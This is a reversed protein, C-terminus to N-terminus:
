GEPRALVPEVALVHGANIFIHDQLHRGNAGTVLVVRAMKEGHGHAVEREIFFADKLELYDTTRQLLRGFCVRGNDLLIARYDTDVPTVMHRTELRIPGSGQWGPGPGPTLKNDCVRGPVYLVDKLTVHSPGSDELKGFLAQGNDLFVAKYDIDASASRWSESCGALTAAICILATLLIGTGVGPQSRRAKDVFHRRESAM